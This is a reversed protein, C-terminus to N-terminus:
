STRESAFQMGRRPTWEEVEDAEVTVREMATMMLEARIATTEQHEVRRRRRMWGPERM